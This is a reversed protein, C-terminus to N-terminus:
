QSAHKKEKRAIWSLRIKERHADSKKKGKSVASLKEKWAEKDTYQKAIGTNNANLKKQWEASRDSNHIKAHEVRTMLQLNEISNNLKDHDVHHIIYHKPKPGNYKEWIIQHLPKSGVILYGFQNIYLDKM